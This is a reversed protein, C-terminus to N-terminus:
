FTLSHIPERDFSMPLTLNEVNGLLDLIPQAIPVTTLRSHTMEDHQMGGGGQGRSVEIGTGIGIHQIRKFSDNGLQIITMRVIELM